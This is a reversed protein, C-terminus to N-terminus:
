GDHHFDGKSAETIFMYTSAEHKATSDHRVMNRLKAIFRRRKMGGETYTPLMWAADEYEMERAYGQPLTSPHPESTWASDSYNLTVAPRGLPRTSVPSEQATVGPMTWATDQYDLMTAPRGSVSATHHEHSPASTAAPMTWATNHYSLNSAVLAPGPSRASAYPHSSTTNPMTWSTEEYDLSNDRSRQLLPQQMSEFSQRSQQKSTYRTTM